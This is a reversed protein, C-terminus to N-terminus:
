QCKWKLNKLYEEPDLKSLFEDKWDAIHMDCLYRRWTNKYWM